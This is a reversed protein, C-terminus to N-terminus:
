NEFFYKIVGMEFKYMSSGKFEIKKLLQGEGEKSWLIRSYLVIQPHPVLIFLTWKSYGIVRGDFFAKIFCLASFSLMKVM